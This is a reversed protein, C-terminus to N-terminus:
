VAFFKKKSNQSSIKFKLSQFTIRKKDLVGQFKTNLIITIPPLFTLNDFKLILYAQYFIFDYVSFVYKTFYFKDQM